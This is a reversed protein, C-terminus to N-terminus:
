VVGVAVMKRINQAFGFGGIELKGILEIFIDKTPSCCDAKLVRSLSFSV